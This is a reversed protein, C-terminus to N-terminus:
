SVKLVRLHDNILAKETQMVIGRIHMIIFKVMRIKTKKTTKALAIVFPSLALASTYTHQFIFITSESMRWKSNQDPLM